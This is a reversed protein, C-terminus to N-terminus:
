QRRPSQGLGTGFLFAIGGGAFVGSSIFMALAEGDDPTPGYSKQWLWTMLGVILGGLVAGQWLANLASVFRSRLTISQSSARGYSAAGMIVGGVCTLLCMLIIPMTDSNRWPEIRWIPVAIIVAAVAWFLPSFRHTRM